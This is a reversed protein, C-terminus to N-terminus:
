FLKKIRKQTNRRNRRSFLVLPKGLTFAPTGFTVKCGHQHRCRHWQLMKKCLYKSFQAFTRVKATSDTHRGWPRRRVDTKKIISLNEQRILVECLSFFSLSFYIVMPTYAVYRLSCGYTIYPRALGTLLYPTPRRKRKAPFNTGDKWLSLCNM